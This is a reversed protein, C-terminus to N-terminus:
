EKEENKKSKNKALRGKKSSSSAGPKFEIITDGKVNMKEASLMNSLCTDMAESIRKRDADCVLDDLALLNLYEAKAFYYYDMSLIKTNEIEFLEKDFLDREGSSAHYLSLMLHALMDDKEIMLSSRALSIAKATNRQRYSAMSLLIREYTADPNIELAKELKAGAKEYQGDFLLKRAENSLHRFVRERKSDTGVDNYLKLYNLVDYAEEILDGESDMLIYREFYERAKKFNGTDFYNCAIGFYCEAFTPDINIIINMFIRNSRDVERLEALVCALNFQYDSNYPEKEAAENLFKLANGYMQRSAHRLGVRFYLEPDRKYKLVNKKYVKKM